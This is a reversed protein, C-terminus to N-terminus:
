RPEETGDFPLGQLRRLVNLADTPHIGVLSLDVYEEGRDLNPVLKLRPVALHGAKVEKCWRETNAILKRRHEKGEHLAVAPEAKECLLQVLRPIDWGTKPKPHTTTRETAAALVCYPHGWSDRAFQNLRSEFSASVEVGDLKGSWHHGDATVRAETVRPGVAAMAAAFRRCADTLDTRREATTM